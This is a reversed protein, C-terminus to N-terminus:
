DLGIFRYRHKGSGLTKVHADYGPDVIGAWGVDGSLGSDSPSTSHRANQACRRRKGKSRPKTISTRTLMRKIESTSAVQDTTAEVAIEARSLGAGEGQGAM